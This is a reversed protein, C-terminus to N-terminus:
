APRDQAQGVAPTASRQWADRSALNGIERISEVRDVFLSFRNPVTYPVAGYMFRTLERELANGMHLMNVAHSHLQFIEAVASVAVAIVGALAIVPRPVSSWAALVPAAAGSVIVSVRARQHWRQYRPAEHGLREIEQQVVRLYGREDEPTVHPAPQGPESM